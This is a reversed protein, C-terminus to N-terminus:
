THRLVGAHEVRASEFKQTKSVGHNYISTEVCSVRVSRLIWAAKCEMRFERVVRMTACLSLV